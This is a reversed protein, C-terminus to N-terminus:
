QNLLFFIVYCYSSSFDLTMLTLFYYSQDLANNLVNLKAIFGIFPPIGALSLLSITLSIALLQNTSTKLQSILEIDNTKQRNLGILIYFINITTLTYQILYYILTHSNLCIISILIFLYSHLQVLTKRKM